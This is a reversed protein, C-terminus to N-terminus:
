KKKLLLDYKKLRNCTKQSIYLPKKPKKEKKYVKTAGPM